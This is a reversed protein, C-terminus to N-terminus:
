LVKTPPSKNRLYKLYSKRNIIDKFQDVYQSHTQNKLQRREQTVQCSKADKGNDILIALDKKFPYRAQLQGTAKDM